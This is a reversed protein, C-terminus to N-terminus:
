ADHKRIQLVWMAEAPDIKISEVDWRDTGDLIYDTKKPVFDYDSKVILAKKDNIDINSGDVDQLKYSTFIILTETYDLGGTEVETPPSTSPDHSITGMSHYTCSKRIDDFAKFGSSIASQIQGALGM